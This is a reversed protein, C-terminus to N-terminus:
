GRTMQKGLAAMLSRTERVCSPLTRGLYAKRFRSLYEAQAKGAARCIWLLPELGANLDPKKLTRHDAGADLYAALLRRYRSGAQKLFAHESLAFLRELDQIAGAMDHLAKMERILGDADPHWPLITEVLYRLRKGAIRLAHIREPTPRRRARERAREFEAAYSRLSGLFAQSFTRKREKGHGGARLKRALKRWAGPLEGRTRRYDADRLSRLEAGFRAIGTHAKPDMRRELLSLWELSVEADRARNTSRALRRLRRRRGTSVPLDDGFARYWGRLRRLAVRTDHLAQGDNPDRLRRVSADTEQVLREAHGRIVAAAPQQLPDAVTRRADM